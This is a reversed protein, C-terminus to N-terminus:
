MPVNEFIRNGPNRSPQSTPGGGIRSRSWAALCSASRWVLARMWAATWRNQSRLSRSRWAVRTAVSYARRRASSKVASRRRMGDSTVHVSGWPPNESSTVRGDPTSAPASNGCAISRPTAKAGPAGKKTSPPPWRVRRSENEDTAALRMSSPIRRRASVMLAARPRSRPRSRTSRPATGTTYCVRIALCPSIVHRIQVSQSDSVALVDAEGLHELAPDDHVDGVGLLRLDGLVGAGRGDHRELAHGGVDAAVAADGPHRRHLLDLLDLLRHRDGHHRLRPDAMEDLRLDEFRERDVVDVLGLHQCGGVLVEVDVLEREANREHAATAIEALREPPDALARRHDAGLALGARAVDDFGDAVHAGDDGAHPAQGREPGLLQHGLGLGEPCRVLEHAPHRLGALEGHRVEGRAPDRGGGVGREHHLEPRFGHEDAGADELRAVGRLAGFRDHLRRRVELIGVHERAHALIEAVGHDADLGRLEGLLIEELRPSPLALRLRPSDIVLDTTTRM